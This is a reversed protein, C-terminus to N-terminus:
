FPFNSISYPSTFSHHFNAQPICISSFLLVLHHLDWSHCLLFPNENLDPLPILCPPDKISFNTRIQTQLLQTQFDATRSLKQSNNEENTFNVNLYVKKQRSFLQMRSWWRFFCQRFGLSHILRAVRYTM